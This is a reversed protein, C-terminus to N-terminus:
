GATALWAEIQRLTRDRTGKGDRFRKLAPYSIGIQEAAAYVGTAGMGRDELQNNLRRRIADPDGSAAAPAAAHEADQRPEQAAQAAETEAYARTIGAVADEGKDIAARMRQRVADLDVRPTGPAAEPADAPEHEPADQEDEALDDGTAAEGVLDDLADEGWGTHRAYWALNTIAAGLNASLSSQEPYTPEYARLRDEDWNTAILRVLDAVAYRDMATSRVPDPRAQVKAREAKHEGRKAKRLIEKLSARDKKVLDWVKAHDDAPLEALTTVDERSINAEMSLIADKVDVGLSDALQDVAAAFHGMKRIQQPTVQFKVALQDAASAQGTLDSRAGQGTAMATYLGGIMYARQSTNANRRVDLQNSLMWIKAATRDPFDMKVPAKLKVGTRKSSEVRRHGDLVIHINNQPWVAIPDRNGYALM